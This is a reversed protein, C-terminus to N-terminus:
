CNIGKRFYIDSQTSETGLRALTRNPTPRLGRVLVHKSLLGRLLLQLRQFPMSRKPAQAIGLPDRQVVFNARVLFRDVADDPARARWLAVVQM